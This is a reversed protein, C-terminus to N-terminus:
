HEYGFKDMWDSFYLNVGDIQDKTLVKAWDGTNRNSVHRSQFGTKPDLSRYNTKTFFIFQVDNTQRKKIINEKLKRDTEHIIKRVNKKSFKEVISSIKGENTEIDMFNAITSVLKAPDNEIDRYAIMKLTDEDWSQYKDTLTWMMKAADVAQEFDVKMFEMYSVIVDRPDRHLSIIKFNPLKFNLVSHIKLVLYDTDCPSETADSFITTSETDKQPVVVPKLDFDSQRVLERAVNYIWMSGTRPATSIWLTKTM